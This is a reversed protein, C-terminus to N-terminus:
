IRDALGRILESLPAHLSRLGDFDGDAVRTTALSVIAGVMAECALHQAPTSASLLDAIVQVVTKQVASRRALLQPGAAYVEVLFVKAVAPEDALAELYAGVAAVVADMPTGSTASTEFGPLLKSLVAEAVLDYAATFCEEKHSFNQYFTLRSVGARKLVDAVSTAGYGKEATVDIM